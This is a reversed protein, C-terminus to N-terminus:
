KKIITVFGSLGEKKALSNKLRDADSRNKFKGCRVRYWAKGKILAEIYYASYGKETLRNTTKIAELESSLSTVQVTYPRTASALVKKKTSTKSSTSASKKLTQQARKAKPATQTKKPKARATKKIQKNNQTDSHQRQSPKPTPVPKERTKKRPAATKTKVAEKKKALLRDHYYLDLKREPTINPRTTKKDSPNLSSQLPSKDDRSTLSTMGWPLMGRGVIIGLAFIWVLLLLLGITWFFMSTLTFELYYKKQKKATNSKKTKKKAM